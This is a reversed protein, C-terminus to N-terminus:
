SPGDLIADDLDLAVVAVADRGVEFADVGDFVGAALGFVEGARVCRFPAVCLDTGPVSRHTQVLLVQSPDAERHAHLSQRRAHMSQHRAGIEASLSVHLAAQRAPHM